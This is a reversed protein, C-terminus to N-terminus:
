FCVRSASVPLGPLDLGALIQSNFLLFCINKLIRFFHGLFSLGSSQLLALGESAGRGATRFLWSLALLCGLASTGVHWGAHTAPSATKLTITSPHTPLRPYPCLFGPVYNVPIQSSLLSALGVVPAGLEEEPQFCHLALLWSNVTPFVCPGLYTQFFPLFRSINYRSSLM